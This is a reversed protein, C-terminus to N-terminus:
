ARRFANKLDSVKAAGTALIAIGFLLGGGGILLALAAIGEVFSGALLPTALITGGWLGAGMILASLVLRPLRSKLRADFKFHGLRVLRVGLLIANVWAAASTALAIGVHGIWFFLALSGVINVAIGIAAFRMPTKTDERAFFGPSLVKILVFAPLGIAFGALALGAGRTDAATFAGREFLVQIIPGPMVALAVAAPLTLLMAFEFARNQANSAGAVDDGRLRRSLDPLLVIGIAIGVVGLPLQYIRDAYYLLSVAGDQLSAIISGALLNFQTAGGAIFGPIGLTVLRRVGPTLRPARLHFAFGARKVAILLMVFQLIGAVVVGWALVVGPSDFHPVAVVLAAILVINLAIPAAAAATFRGVSNLVASLLAVLSMFLLYPFAIRTLLIGLEFKDPTDAFGPAIAYMLWPMTLEAVITFVILTFLLVSLAEEAFRKASAKGEGELRKAFLPVFASNFAGEAFLRRFLNPFKFAVFFADAIPGTGLTGAILIDRAFGLFRSILTMGGVTMASRVLNM